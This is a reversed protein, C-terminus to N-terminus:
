NKLCSIISQQCKTPRRTISRKTEPKASRFPWLLDQPQEIRSRLCAAHHSALSQIWRVCRFWRAVDPLREFDALKSQKSQVACPAIKNDLNACDIAIFIKCDNEHAVMM